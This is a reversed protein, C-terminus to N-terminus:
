HRRMLASIMAMTGRGLLLSELPVVGFGAFPDFILDGPKSFSRVLASAMSTKLKGIYPALQHLSDETNATSARWATKLSELSFDMTSNKGHRPLALVVFKEEGAREIGGGLAVYSLSTLM